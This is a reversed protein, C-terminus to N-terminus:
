GAQDDASEAQPNEAQPDDLLRLVDRKEIVVFPQGKEMPRAPLQGNRVWNRITRLPLGTANAVEQLSYYATEERYTNPYETDTDSVVIRVTEIGVYIHGSDVSM